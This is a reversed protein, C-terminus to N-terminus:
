AWRRLVSLVRGADHGLLRGHWLELSVTEQADARASGTKQEVFLCSAVPVGNRSPRGWAEDLKSAAQSDLKLVIFHAAVEARLAEDTHMLDDLALCWQCWNGGLIVLLRKNERNARALASDFAARTDLQEDYIKRGQLQQLRARNYVRPGLKYAGVLALAGLPAAFASLLRARASRRGAAQGPGLPPHASVRGDIPRKGLPVAAPTRRTRRGCRHPRERLQALRVASRELQQGALRVSDVSQAAAPRVGRAGLPPVQRAGAVARGCVRQMRANM